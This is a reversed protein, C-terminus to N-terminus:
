RFSFDWIAATSQGRPVAVFLRDGALVGTRAGQRTTVTMKRHPDTEDILEVAGSGCIVVLQNAHFYLDDADGCAAASFITAGSRAELVSVTGPLRYAVAIRSGAANTAMPYNKLLLGTNLAGSVKGDDVDAILIKRAGPVNVFVRAGILEFAEPHAPLSIQRIIRHAGPDIVALAGSGYGVVLDGNRNDMRVNDADDGLSIDAVERRDSWRYFHVSGDGCAVALENQRQLWVVSQPERLGSIRGALKGSALDVDDVTGNAIEAIFLQNSKPDFALHDIRGQVGPLGITRVLQLPSRPDRPDFAQADASCSTAALLVLSLGPLRSVLQASM